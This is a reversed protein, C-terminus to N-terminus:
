KAKGKFTRLKLWFDLKPYTSEYDTNILFPMMMWNLTLTQSVYANSIIENWEARPQETILLKVYLSNASLNQQDNM